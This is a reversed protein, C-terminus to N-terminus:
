IGLITDVQNRDAQTAVRYANAVLQLRANIFATVEPGLIKNTVAFDVFSANDDFPPLPPILAARRDNEASRASTIAAEQVPTTSFSHVAM